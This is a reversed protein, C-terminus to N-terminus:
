GFLNTLVPMDHGKVNEFLLAPGGAELVRQSIETMELETSVETQIRKLEGRKELDAIFDRMDKYSM